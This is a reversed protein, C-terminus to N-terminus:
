KIQNMFKTKNIFLYFIVISSNFELPVKIEQKQLNSIIHRFSFFLPFSPNNNFSFRLYLKQLFLFLLYNINKM